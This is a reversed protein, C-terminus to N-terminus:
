RSLQHYIRVGVRPIKPTNFFGTIAKEQRNKRRDARNVLMHAKCGWVRFLKHTPM